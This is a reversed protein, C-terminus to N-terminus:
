ARARKSKAQQVEQPRQLNQVEAIQAKTLAPNDNLNLKELQTLNELGKVSTLQNSDLRLGKLQALKELGKVDTLRNNKLWLSRLKALKELDKPVETLQNNMLSLGKLQMLKELRKPVETLRSNGLRLYTVKKYDAETLKGTSIISGRIAKEVIPDAINAPVAKTPKLQEEPKNEDVSPNVPRSDVKDTTTKKSCGALAVAVIILLIQKM